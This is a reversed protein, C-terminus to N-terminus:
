LFRQCWLEICILAFIPYTADIKGAKDMALLTKVATPNFIDRRTIVSDSLTDHVLHQLDNHLWHRLPAGFGTKPRYIINSPLYPEMSKKLIWKSTLRRHKYKIPLSAAFAVLDPDLFPVRTEVGVAMSMKDGYNLNHDALFHKMELYLMKNLAITDYPLASLTNILPNNFNSLSLKEKMSKSLLNLRHNPSLWQFYSVLRDDSNLNANSFIKSLRRGGFRMSISSESINKLLSRSGVNLWSWYREMMLATHRRYGSFIDDGGAGSLLVKINMKRALESIFLQNLAAPDAQPEDLLYVMDSFRQAMNSDVSVINLEVGLHSAVQKAYPLDNIIGEKSWAEDNFQMTFCPLQTGSFHKSAYYVISSSDLGGSLFAGVPVDSVMQRQVAQELLKRTESIATGLKINNDINTIPIDYYRWTTQICSNKVIMANGPALKKVSSLMTTPNPSWLYSMYNSIGQPDLERSVSTEKLIAKIESAFIFGKSTQSFYLPKVGFHDRAIFLEKKSNDWIAFAFIGNLQSLMAQGQDLYLKLLVETDSTSVFSYGKLLLRNRIESFNYIEGNFVISTKSSPDVMPQHGLSSLDIISLRRHCLGVNSEPLLFEGGDDPGRHIMSDNMHRLLEPSFNGLFGAISCM